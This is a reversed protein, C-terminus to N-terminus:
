KDGVGFIEMIKNNEEHDYNLATTYKLLEIYNEPPIEDVNPYKLKLEEFTM